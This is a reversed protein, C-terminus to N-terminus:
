INNAHAYNYTCKLGSNPDIISIIVELNLLIAMGFLLNWIVLPCPLWQSVSIGVITDYIYIYGARILYRDISNKVSM